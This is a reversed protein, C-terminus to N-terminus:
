MPPPKRSACIDSQIRALVAHDVPRLFERLTRLWRETEVQAAESRLAIILAAGVEITPPVAHGRIFIPAYNEGSHGYVVCSEPQLLSDM